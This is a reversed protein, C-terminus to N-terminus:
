SFILKTFNVYGPWCGSIVKRGWFERKSLGSTIQVPSSMDPANLDEKLTKKCSLLTWHAGWGRERTGKGGTVTSRPLPGQSRPQPGKAALWERPVFGGHQLAFTASPYSLCLFNSNLIIGKTRLCKTRRKGSRRPRAVTARLCPPKTGRSHSAALPRNDCSKIPVSVHFVGECGEKQRWAVCKRGGSKQKHPPANCSSM